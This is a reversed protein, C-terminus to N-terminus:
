GSGQRAGLGEAGEVGPCLGPAPCVRIWASPQDPKQGPGAPWVIVFECAELGHPSISIKLLLFKFVTWWGEGPPDLAEDWTGEAPAAWREDEWVALRQLHLEHGLASPYPDTLPGKGGREGEKTSMSDQKGINPGPWPSADWGEAPSQSAWEKHCGLRGWGKKKVREERGVKRWSSNHTLSLLCITYTGPQPILDNSERRLLSATQQDPNSPSLPAAGNGCLAMQSWWVWVSALRDIEKVNNKKTPPTTGLSWKVAATSEPRTWSFALTRKANRGGSRRTPTLVDNNDSTPRHLQLTLATSEFPFWAIISCM